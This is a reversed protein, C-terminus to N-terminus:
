VETTQDTGKKPRGIVFRKKLEEFLSQAGPINDHAAQKVSNYYSLAQVFAESGAIMGTDEVRRFFQQLRNELTRLNVADALDINLDDINLYSPCFQPNTSALESTKEVFALSKDGMKLLKHRDDPTLTHLSSDLIGIAEDVKGLAQEIVEKPISQNHINASM